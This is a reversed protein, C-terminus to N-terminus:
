DIQTDVPSLTGTALQTQLSRHYAEVTLRRRSSLQQQVEPLRDEPITFVVAIPQRQTIVALGNADTTHVVNGPDILRLGIRGTLPSTIRAYTLNLRAADIQAQDSKVTAELQQVTAIQTDLQQRAVADQTMLAQYRALDVRANSLTAADRATQGEAQELQVQFPRPDIQALLENSRVLQGEEFAVSVLQGDVQTRVTVTKLPTVTGLGDLYVAMDGVRARAAVVPIAAASPRPRDAAAAGRPAIRLVVVYGALVALAAGLIWRRRRRGGAGSM